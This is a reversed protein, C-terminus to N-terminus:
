RESYLLNMGRALYDFGAVIYLVLGAYFLMIGFDVRAVMLFIAVSLIATAAKGIFTVRIDHGRQRLIAMGTLLIFDRTLLVALAWLPPEQHKLFLAIVVGAILLRDVLPDLLRGLETVNNARRALYGDFLDTLAAIGFVLVAFPSDELILKFVVPILLLRSVTLANAMNKTLM